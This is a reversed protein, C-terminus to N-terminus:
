IQDDLINDILDQDFDLWEFSHDMEHSSFDLGDDELQDWFRIEEILLPLILHFMSM